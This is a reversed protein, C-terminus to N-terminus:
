LNLVMQCYEEMLVVGDGDSDLINFHRESEDLSLWKGPGLRYELLTLQYDRESDLRRFKRICDEYPNEGGAAQCLVEGNEFQLGGVCQDCPNLISPDKPMCIGKSACWGCRDDAICGSCDLTTCDTVEGVRFCGLGYNSGALTANICAQLGSQSIILNHLSFCPSYTFSRGLIPPCITVTGTAEDFSIPSITAIGDLKSYCRVQKLADIAAFAVQLPGYPLDRLSATIIVRDAYLLEIRPIDMECLDVKMKLCADGFIDLAGPFSPFSSIDPTDVSAQGWTLDITQTGLAGFLTNYPVNIDVSDPTCIDRKKRLVSSDNTGERKWPEDPLDPFDPIDFCEHFPVDVDISFDGEKSLAAFDVEYQLEAAFEALRFVTGVPNFCAACAYSLRGEEDVEPGCWTNATEWEASAQRRHFVSWGQGQKRLEYEAGPSDSFKTNIPKGVVLLSASLVLLLVFSLGPTVNSSSM